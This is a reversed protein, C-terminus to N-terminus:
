PKGGHTFIIEEKMGSPGIPCAPNEMSRMPCDVFSNRGTVPLLEGNRLLVCAPSITKATDTHALQKRQASAVIHSPYASNPICCIRRLVRIGNLSEKQPM